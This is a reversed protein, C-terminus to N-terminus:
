GGNRPSRFFGWWQGVPKTKPQLHNMQTRILLQLFFRLPLVEPDPRSDHM